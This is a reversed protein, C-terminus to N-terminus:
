TVFALSVCTSSRYPLSADVNFRIADYSDARLLAVVGSHVGGDDGRYPLPEARLKALPADIVLISRIM